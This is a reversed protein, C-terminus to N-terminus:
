FVQEVNVKRPIAAGLFHLNEFSIRSHGAM